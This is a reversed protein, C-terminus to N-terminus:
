LFVINEFTQLLTKKNQLVFNTNCGYHRQLKILM